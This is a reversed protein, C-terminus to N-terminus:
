PAALRAAGVPSFGAGNLGPTLWLSEDLAIVVRTRHVRALRHLIRCLSSPSNHRFFRFCWFLRCGTFPRTRASVPGASITGPEAATTASAAGTPRRPLATASTLKEPALFNALEADLFNFVDIVLIVAHEPLEDGLAAFDHRPTQGAYARRM